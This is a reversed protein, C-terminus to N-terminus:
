SNCLATNLFFYYFCFKINLYLYGIFKKSFCFQQPTSKNQLIVFAQARELLVFKFASSFYICCIDRKKIPRVALRFLYLLHAFTPMKQAKIRPCETTNAPTKFLVTPHQKGQESVWSILKSYVALWNAMSFGTSVLSSHWCILLCVKSIKQLFVWWCQM